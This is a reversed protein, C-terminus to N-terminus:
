DDANLFYVEYKRHPTGFFRRNIATSKLNNDWVFNTEVYRYSDETLSRLARLLSLTAQPTLAGIANLKFTDINKRHFVYGKLIKLTSIQEGANLMQNFDPHWFLFGVDKGTNDVAFLFNNDKLFPALDKMLHYFHGEETPFYLFTKSITKECLQRMRECTGKLDKVRGFEVHDGGKVSSFLFKTDAESFAARYTSLSKFPLGQFYEKYYSKNYLSDFSNKYDFEETLIGVGYSIHANLGVVIQKLGITKALTKAEELLLEVGQQANEVAEFFSIQLYPLNPHYIFIAECLVRAGEEIIVPYVKCAKTFPTKQFLVDELVFSATDVYSTDGQYLANKFALFKKYEKKTKVYLSNM